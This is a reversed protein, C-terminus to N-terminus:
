QKSLSLRFDENIDFFLKYVTTEPRMSTVNEFYKFGNQEAM